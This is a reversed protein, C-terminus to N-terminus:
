RAPEPTAEGVAARRDVPTLVDRELDEAAEWTGAEAFAV